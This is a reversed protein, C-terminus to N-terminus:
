RRIRMSVALSGDRIMLQDLQVTEWRGLLKGVVYGLGGGILAGAVAGTAAEETRSNVPVLPDVFPDLEDSCVFFLISCSFSLKETPEFNVLAALAGIAGGAAAGIWLGSWRHNRFTPRKLEVNDWSRASVGGSSQYWLTDPAFRVVSGESWRPQQEVGWLPSPETSLPKVRIVSGAVLPQGHAASPAHALLLLSFLVYRVHSLWRGTHMTSKRTRCVSERWMM